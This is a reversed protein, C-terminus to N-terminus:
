RAVFVGDVVISVALTDLLRIELERAVGKMREAKEEAMGLVTQAVNYHDGIYSAKYARGGHVKIEWVIEGKRVAEQPESWTKGDFSTM